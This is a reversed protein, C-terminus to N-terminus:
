QVTLQVTTTQVDTGSTGTVTITYSQSPTTLGFGGGCATLATFAGLSALLLVAMAIWRRCRRGPVLCLGILALASTAFPWAPGRKASAAATTSATQISLTSNASSSGPTVSAPSFTAVAGTPLGSASLTVPNAFTGNQPTVTIAFQATGGPQVTQPATPSSVTFSPAATGTGSLSATQPSGAANDAVSLTASFTAVSAPTFTVYILCNAGAALTTGCANSGTAIAFDTPSTGTITIGSINLAANGSNTLTASQAASTAGSVGSFTLTTPTLVAVPAAAAVTGFNATVDEPASMTITTAASNASAVSGTWDTFSFGSNATATLNVVTGPAYFTGSAPTVIGDAAPSAATTLQYGTATFTATYTTASAPATVSHSIAGGDSWNSFTEQTGALTQPSTTAITHSSGVTWTLSQTASYSTGDVSFSLGAPTIAVTVQVTAATVTVTNSGTASNYTTSSNADPTYTVSLTDTGAALSGAAINITATGSALTVAGSSYSGSALTVSGTPTPNGSGGNLAVTVSLAQTTTISAPSPTVTVTPTILAAATVAVTNMGTANTYTSSSNSDPMYSATLTNTGKPLTGAPISITASGGSLTVAGSSYSGSTLTVSGTPTPNGNGGSVTVTVTDAQATTVSAPSPSVTVTPATAAATVAVVNSGTANTYSIASAQDPTYTATLTDTGKALSGAPINITAVGGSLTVAGSSYTGSILTVSGTPTPNGSGGSVTVTVTDAQATTISAPSPSVTVTPTLAPNLVDIQLVLSHSLGGAATGTITIPFTGVGPLLNSTIVVNFNQSGGPAITVMAPASVGGTFSPFTPTITVTGGFGNVATITVVYTASDGAKAVTQTPTSTTITFDPTSTTAAPQYVWLDNLIGETDNSDTGYGGFLWLNGSTDFWSNAGFRGGPTNGASPVDLASAIVGWPGCGFIRVDCSGTNIETAPQVSSGSFWTWEKTSTNFEWLDNMPGNIGNADTGFGGFLWLNGDNSTYTTALYRDNPYDTSSPTGITGYVGGNDYFNTASSNAGGWWTWEMTSPTFEWLDDLTNYEMNSQEGGFLWFNGNGDNWVSASDRAAPINSASPVGLTGYVGGPQFVGPGAPLAGACGSPQSGGMWAWQKSSTNFKWLDNFEYGLECTGNYEQFYGGFLWLNGDSDTWSAAGFRGGPTNAAAPTGLTGYVGPQGYFTYNADTATVNSGSEWTWEKTTPNFMWLDNLIGSNGNAGFGEGGFLWFNGSGDVWTSGWDRLGPWNGPAAVGLTGYDGPPGNQMGASWFSGTESLGGWWTWQNTSPDFEWIDNLLTAEFQKSDFGDGGFLWLNGSGDIWQAASWRAGPFGVGATGMTGYIGHTGNPAGDVGPINLSGGAWTWQGPATAPPSQAQVATSTGSLSFTASAGTDVDSITLSASEPGVTSPTFDVAIPCSTGPNFNGQQCPGGLSSAIVSFDAKNPGAFNWFIDFLATSGTNTLTIVQAASTTGIPATFSLSGSPSSTFTQARGGLSGAGLICLMAFAIRRSRRVIREQHIGRGAAFFLEAVKSLDM